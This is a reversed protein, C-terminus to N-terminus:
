ALKNTPDGEEIMEALVEKKARSPLYGTLQAQLVIEQRQNFFEAEAEARGKEDLSTIEFRCTITDGFYVPKLYKFNMSAALWALQGGIECIMGGILLGHCILEPYGSAQAFRSDYHVPNFDRTLNGFEVTEERSFTRTITFASGKKLGKLVQERMESVDVGVGRIAM